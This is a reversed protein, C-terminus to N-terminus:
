IKNTVSFLSLRKRRNVNGIIQIHSTLLVNVQFTSIMFPVEESVSLFITQVSCCESCGFKCKITILVSLMYKSFLVVVLVVVVVVFVALFCDGKFIVNFFM